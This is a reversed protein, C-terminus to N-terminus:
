VLLAILNSLVQLCLTVQVMCTAFKRIETLEITEADTEMSTQRGMDVPMFPDSFLLPGLSVYFSDYKSPQIVPPFNEHPFLAYFGDAFGSQKALPSSIARNSQRTSALRSIGLVAEFASTHLFTVALEHRMAQTQNSSSASKLPPAAIRITWTAVGSLAQNAHCPEGKCQGLYASTSACKGNLGSRYQKGAWFTPKYRPILRGGKIHVYACSYYDSFFARKRKYHLGGFWAQAFVYVGDPYVEPIRVYSSYAYGNKDTGCEPSYGCKFLGQSFCGWEFATKQHWRHSWMHKVPVLSRRFYGGEHNNRHWVIKQFSGRKWTASPTDPTNRARSKGHSWIPPCPTQCEPPNCDIPNWPAPKALNTHAHVPSLAAVTLLVILASLKMKWCVKNAPQPRELAKVRNTSNLFLADPNIRPQTGM